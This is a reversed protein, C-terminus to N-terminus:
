DWRILSTSYVLLLHMVCYICVAVACDICLVVFGSRICVTLAVFVCCLVDFLVVLLPSLPLRSIGHQLLSKHHRIHLHTRWLNWTRGHQKNRKAMLTSYPIILSEKTQMCRPWSSRKATRKICADIERQCFCPRANPSTVLDASSGAPRSRSRKM